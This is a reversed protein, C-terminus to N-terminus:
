SVKYQNPPIAIKQGGKQPDPVLQGQADVMPQKTQPDKKPTFSGDFKMADIKEFHVTPNATKGSSSTFIGVINKTKSDQVGTHTAQHKSLGMDDRSHEANEGKFKPDWNVARFKGQNRVVVNFRTPNILPTHSIINSCTRLM